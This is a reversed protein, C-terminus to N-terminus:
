PKGRLEGLRLAHLLRLSAELFTAAGCADGDDARGCSPLLAKARRQLAVVVLVRVLQVVEIGGHGVSALGMRGVLVGSGGEPSLAPAWLWVVAPWRMALWSCWIARGFVVAAV